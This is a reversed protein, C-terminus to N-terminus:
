HFRISDILISRSIKIFTYIKNDLSSHNPVFFKRYGLCFIVTYLRSLIFYICGSQQTIISQLGNQLWTVLCLTSCGFALSIWCSTAMDNPYLYMKLLEWTGRWYGVVLPAVFCMSLISDGVVALPHGFLNRRRQNWSSSM